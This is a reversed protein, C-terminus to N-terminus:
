GSRPGCAVWAAGLASCGATVAYTVMGGDQRLLALCVGFGLASAACSATALRLLSTARLERHWLWKALLATLSGVVLAPVALALLHWTGLLPTM